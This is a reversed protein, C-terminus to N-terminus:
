KMFRPAATLVELAGANNNTGYEFTAEYARLLRISKVTVAPISALAQPGSAPVHDIYVRLRGYGFGSGRTWTLFDPRLLQIADLATRVDVRGIEAATLTRERYEPTPSAPRPYGACAGGAVAVLSVLLIGGVKRATTAFSLWPEPLHLTSLMEVTSTTTMTLGLPKEQTKLAYM